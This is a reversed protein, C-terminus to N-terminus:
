GMKGKVANQITEELTYFSYNLEKKIKGADYAYNSFLSNVTESTVSSRKQTFISFFELVRRASNVMWRKALVTPKKVKLEKAIVDMLEKFTQNSGICLYRQSHKESHMLQVMIRAVDRADVIANAGPPYFRVGKEMTKFLTLSSDNWNGPGLIVCPNVIVANLGEEIGRWVENEASYKSISYGSTTPSNKWSHNENITKGDEGGVAATSSVYCLKDVSNSLCLNVVNATGERNIKILKDFDRPHFSVLAACHYVQKCGQIANNLSTLDLIDGHIWEIKNFLDEWNEGFYFQFLHQVIKIRSDSRYLVRVNDNSQMLEILLHSGLLGTGGTVLIM